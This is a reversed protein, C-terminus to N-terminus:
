GRLYSKQRWDKVTKSGSDTGITSPKIQSLPEDVSPVFDASQNAQISASLKALESKFLEPQNSHYIVQLQALKMPNKAIDYMIDATNPFNNAIQVLHPVQSVDLKGVVEKFDPYKANGADMKQTFQNAIQHAQAMNSARDNEEAIMRRIEDQSVSQMGGMGGDGQPSQSMQAQQQQAAQQAQLQALAEQKGRDYAEAKVAGVLKNVESQSVMKESAEKANQATGAAMEQDQKGASIDMDTM